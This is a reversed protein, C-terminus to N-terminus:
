RRGGEFMLYELLVPYKTLLLGYQELEDFRRYIEVRNKAKEELNSSMQGKQLAIYTEYLDKTQRYLAYDPLTISKVKMSFNTILPFKEQVKQEFAPSEGNKLLDEIQEASEEDSNMYRLIFDEIQGAIEDEYKTLEEQTGINNKSALPILAEPRLSFSFSANIEWSFEGAIGAFASYVNGSPLTNKVLLERNVPDLRLVITQVNTPILKYWIWRFEGPKVLRTDLGHTKSRILGYADPPVGMQAWGFFLGVGALIIFIFLVTFFKKM